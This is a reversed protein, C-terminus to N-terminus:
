SKLFKASSELFLVLNILCMSLTTSHMWYKSYSSLITMCLKVCLRRLDTVPTIYRGLENGVLKEFHVTQAMDADFYANYLLFIWARNFHSCIHSIELNMPM